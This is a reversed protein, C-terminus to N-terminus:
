PRGRRTAVSNGKAAMVADFKRGCETADGTAIRIDKRANVGVSRRYDDDGAVRKRMFQRSFFEHDEKVVGEM